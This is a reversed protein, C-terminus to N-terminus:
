TSFVSHLVDTPSVEAGVLESVPGSAVADFLTSILEKLSDGTQKFDPYSNVELLKVSLDQNVLFDVGFIEIANEMPQFNIRDVSAAAQFLQGSIQKVQAFVSEKQKDDLGKLQWFPVVLPDKGEQLCTNTLHGALDMIEDNSDPAVYSADAFLALINEYVYVKLNGQCVIYVRLHFKRRSYEELLLPERQYEQVVFHRLQSIIVGNDDSDKGNDADQDDEDDSEAEEFSDFIAQLQDVTEFLRIGQGKDSMSPKLIWTKGGEEIEQRLEYAEDLADDLFEAYDVELLYSQPFAAALASDPNKAAYHRVTNALYHKRILAKRYIFLPVFYQTPHSQVLDLDIQEYEGYHFIRLHPNSPINQLVSFSTEVSFGRRAFAVVLPLFVYSSPDVTILFINSETQVQKQGEAETRAREASLESVSEPAESAESAESAGTKAESSTQTEMEETDVDLSEAELNEIKKEGIPGLVFEARLPTVSIGDDALVRSDSHRKDALGDRWVQEFDPTWAYRGNEESYMSEWANCLVPAYKVPTKALLLLPVLPVNVLFLDVDPQKQFERYLRAVLRVSVRCAERVTEPDHSASRFEYSLAVAKTGHTVAEMAAGVTGLALIYLRGLNKGFNPGSVVLDVPELHSRVHHLGIDACAAPTSDLLVWEQYEPGYEKREPFPGEYSNSPDLGSDRTYIYNAAVKKGAFHAKGIWSRQQNPVVVSVKWNTSRRIEDVFPKMFPCTADSPPGDDNTLLVHM